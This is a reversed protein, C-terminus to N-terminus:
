TYICLRISPFFVSTWSMRIKEKWYQPTQGMERKSDSHVSKAVFSWSLFCLWVLPVWVLKGLPFNIFHNYLLSVCGCLLKFRNRYELEQLCFQNSHPLSMHPMSTSCPISYDLSLSWVVKQFYYPSQLQRYAPLSVPLIKDCSFLPMNIM